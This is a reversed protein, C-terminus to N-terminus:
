KFHLKAPFGTGRTSSNCDSQWLCMYALTVNIKSQVGNLLVDVGAKFLDFAEDLEGLQEYELGQTILKGAQVIYAGTEISPSSRRENAGLQPSQSKKVEARGEKYDRDRSSGDLAPSSRPSLKQMPPKEPSAKGKTGPASKRPSPVDLKDILSDFDDIDRNQALAESWWDDMGSADNAGPLPKPTSPLDLEAEPMPSTNKSDDRDDGSREGDELLVEPSKGEDRLKLTHEVNWESIIMSNVRLIGPKSSSLLLSQSEEDQKEAPNDETEDESGSGNSNDEQAPKEQGGSPPQSDLETGDSESPPPHKSEPPPTTTADDTSQVPRPSSHNDSPKGNSTSVNRTVPDPMSTGTQSPPLSAAHTQPVIAPLIRKIAAGQSLCVFLCIALCAEKVCGAMERTVTLDGFM